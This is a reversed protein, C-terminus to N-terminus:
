AGVFPDGVVVPPNPDDFPDDGIQWKRDETATDEVVEAEVIETEAELAALRKGEAVIADLEAKTAGASMRDKYHGIAEARSGLEPISWQPEAKPPKVRKPQEVTVTTNEAQSMEEATYVGSLDQPFAKRLALAEACKALMVHPLKAWMDGVKGNFVQAYEAWYARASFSCVHGQVLKQVTVTIYEPYGEANTPGTETVDNGVYAGTRDAILRYGDIGTQITLRPEKTRTEPNWAKRMVAYIQRAAPDLGTRQCTHLFLLQEGHNAQSLGFAELQAKTFENQDDTISLAGVAKRALATSM